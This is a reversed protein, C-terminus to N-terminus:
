ETLFELAAIGLRRAEDNLPAWGIHGRDNLADLRRLRQLDKRTCEARAAQPDPLISLLLAVDQWDRPDSQRTPIEATAAAKAILAGLLTPRRVEGEVSLGGTMGSVRVAVREARDLAQRSGPAQVTRAPRRTILHARLGLGEHALVDFVVRGHGATAPKSFRHGIQEASIGELEYGRGELWAALKETGRPSARVDVVVDMDDTPRPLQAGHEVALLYIVQGGVLVWAIEDQRALAFLTAWGEMAAPTLGPLEIM